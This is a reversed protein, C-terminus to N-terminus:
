VRLSLAELLLCSRDTLAAGPPGAPQGARSDQGSQYGWLLPSTESFGLPGEQPFPWSGQVLRTGGEMEECREAEEELQIKQKGM